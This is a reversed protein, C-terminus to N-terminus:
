AASASGDEDFLDGDEVVNGNTVAYTPGFDGPPMCAVTRLPMMDVVEEAGSDYGEVETTGLSHTRNRQALM